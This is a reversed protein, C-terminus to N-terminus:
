CGSMWTESISFSMDFVRKSMLRSQLRRDLVIRPHPKKRYKFVSHFPHNTAFTLGELEGWESTGHLVVHKSEHPIWPLHLPKQTRRPCVLSLSNPGHTRLDHLTHCSDQTHRSQRPCPCTRETGEVRTTRDISAESAPPHSHPTCTQISSAMVKCGHTFMPEIWLRPCADNSTPYPRTTPYTPMRGMEARNIAIQHVENGLMTVRPSAAHMTTPTQLPQYRAANLLVIYVSSRPSDWNRNCNAPSPGHNPWM